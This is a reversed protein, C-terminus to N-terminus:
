IQRLHQARAQPPLPSLEPPLRPSFSPQACHLQHKSFIYRLLLTGQPSPNEKAISTSEHNFRLIDVENSFSPPLAKVRPEGSSTTYLYKGNATEFLVHVSVRFTFTHQVNFVSPSFPIVRPNISAPTESISANRAFLLALLRMSSDSSTLSAPSVPPMIREVRSRMNACYSLRTRPHLTSAPASTTSHKASSIMTKTMDM